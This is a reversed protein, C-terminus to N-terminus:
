FCMQFYVGETDELSIESYVLSNLLIAVLQSAGKMGPTLGHPWPSLSDVRYYM